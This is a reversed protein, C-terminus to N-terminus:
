FTVELFAAHRKTFDVIRALEEWSCDFSQSIVESRFYAIIVNGPTFVVCHDDDVQTCLGKAAIESLVITDKSMVNIRIKM